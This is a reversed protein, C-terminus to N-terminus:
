FLRRFLLKFVEVCGLFAVLALDLQDVGRAVLLLVGGLDGLQGEFKLLALEAIQRLGLM